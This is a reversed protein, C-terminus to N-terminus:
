PKFVVKINNKSMNSEIELATSRLYSHKTYKQLRKKAIRVLIRLRWKWVCFNKTQKNKQENPVLLNEQWILFTKHM